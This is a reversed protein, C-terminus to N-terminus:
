NVKQIIIIISNLLIKFEFFSLRLYCRSGLVLNLRMTQNSVTRQIIFGSLCPCQCFLRPRFSLVFLVQLQQGASRQHLVFNKLSRLLLLYLNLDLLSSM